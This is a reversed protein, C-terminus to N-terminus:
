ETCSLSEDGSVDVVSCLKQKSGDEENKRYSKTIALASKEMLMNSVKQGPLSM